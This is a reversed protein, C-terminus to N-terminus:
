NTSGSNDSTETFSENNFEGDTDTADSNSDKTKVVSDSSGNHKITQNVSNDQENVQESVFYNKMNDILDKESQMNSFLGYGISIGIAMTLVSTLCAIAIMLRNGKRQTKILEQYKLENADRQTELDAIKVAYEQKKKEDLTVLAETLEDIRGQQRQNDSAYVAIDRRHINEQAAKEDAHRQKLATMNSEHASNLADFQQKLQAVNGEYEKQIRAVRDDRKQEELLAAVRDIEYRRNQDLFEFLKDEYAKRMAEEDKALNAYQVCCDSILDKNKLDLIVNQEARIKGKIEGIQREFVADIDSIIDTEIKKKQQEFEWSHRERYSQEAEIRSSEGAAKVKAEFEDKLEEWKAKIFTHSDMRTKDRAEKLEFYQDSDLFADVVKTSDMYYSVLTNLYRTRVISLNKQHLDKLDKNMTLIQSNIQDDIWGGPHFQVPIFPIVDALAQDLGDTTLKVDINDDFFKRMIAQQSSEPTFTVKEEQMPEVGFDSMDDSIDVASDSIDMDDLSDADYDSVFDNQSYLDDDTDSSQNLAEDKLETINLEVQDEDEEVASFSDISDEQQVYTNVSSDSQVSKHPSVKSEEVEDVLRRISPVTTVSKGDLHLSQVDSLSTKVNSLEIEGTDNSIFCYEYKAMDALLSYEAMNNVTDFTPIFVIADKDVLKDNNMVVIKGSNIQNVISGKSENSKSDKKSLGGIESFPMYLGVYFLEGDRKVSFLSNNKCYDITADWVTEHFLPEERSKRVGVSKKDRPSDGNNVVSKKKGFAM